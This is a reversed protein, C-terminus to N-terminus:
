SDTDDKDRGYKQQAHEWATWYDGALELGPLGLEQRAEEMADGVTMNTLEDKM